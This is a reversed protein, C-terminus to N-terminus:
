VAAQFQFDPNRGVTARYAAILECEVGKREERPFGKPLTAWSVEVDRGAAWHDRVAAAFAAHQTTPQQGAIRAARRHGDLREKLTRGTEGIYLLGSRGAVRFRYLGQEGIGIASMLLPNDHIFQTWESWGFGQWHPGQPDRAPLAIPRPAAPLQPNSPAVTVRIRVKAATRPHGPARDGM